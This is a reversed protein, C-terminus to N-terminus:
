LDAHLFSTLAGSSRVSFSCKTDSRIWCTSFWCSITSSALHSDRPKGKGKGTGGKGATDYKKRANERKGCM